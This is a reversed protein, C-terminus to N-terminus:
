RVVRECRLLGSRGHKRHLNVIEVETHGKFLHYIQWSSSISAWFPGPIDSISALYRRKVATLGVFLAVLLVILQSTTLQSWWSTSVRLFPDDMTSTSNLRQLSRFRSVSLFKLRLFCNILHRLESCASQPIYVM